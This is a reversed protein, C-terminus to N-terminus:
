VVEVTVPEINYKGSIVGYTQSLVVYVLKQFCFDDTQLRSTLCM